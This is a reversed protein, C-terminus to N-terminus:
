AFYTLCLFAYSPVLGSFLSNALDTPVSRLWKQRAPYAIWTLLTAAATYVLSNQLCIQGQFNFPMERYDWLEYKRNAVMGTLYDISTCAVQNALFSAALAPLVRGGTRLLLWERLPSLLLAILLGAVGEAPFPHLWWDWLMTNGRDYDGGVVGLRILQCFLMEAWHGVISYAAYLSILNRMEEGLTFPLAADRPAFNMPQDFHTRLHPSFALMAAGAINPLCDTAVRVVKDRLPSSVFQDRVPTADTESARREAVTDKVAEAVQTALGPEKEQSTWWQPERWASIASLGATTAATAISVPIAARKRHYLMWLGIGSGALQVLDRVTHWGYSYDIARTRAAETLRTIIAEAQTDIVIEASFPRMKPNLTNIFATGYGKLQSGLNSLLAM